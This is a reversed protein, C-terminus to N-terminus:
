AFFGSALLARLTDGTVDAPIPDGPEIKRGDGIHVAVSHANVKPAAPKPAPTIAPKKAAM